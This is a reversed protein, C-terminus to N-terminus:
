IVKEDDVATFSTRQGLVAADIKSYEIFEQNKYCRRCYVMGHNNIRLDNKDEIERRCRSCYIVEGYKDKM